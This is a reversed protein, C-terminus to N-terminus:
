MYIATHFNILYYCSSDVEGYMTIKHCASSPNFLSVFPNVSCIQVTFRGATPSRRATRRCADRLM